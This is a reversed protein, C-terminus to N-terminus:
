AKMTYQLDNKFVEESFSSIFSNKILEWKVRIVTGVDMGGEAPDLLDPARQWTVITNKQKYLFMNLKISQNISQNYTDVQSILFNEDFLGM